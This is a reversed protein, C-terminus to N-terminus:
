GYVYMNVLGSQMMNNGNNKPSILLTRPIVTGGSCDRKVNHSDTKVFMAGFLACLVNVRASFCSIKCFNFLPTLALSNASFYPMPVDVTESM